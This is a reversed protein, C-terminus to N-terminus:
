RVRARTVDRVLERLRPELLDFLRRAVSALQDVVEDLAADAAFAIREATTPEHMLDHLAELVNARAENETAGQSIAAPFEVIQATVWGDPNPTFRFTLRDPGGSATPLDTTIAM